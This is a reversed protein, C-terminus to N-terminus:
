TLFMACFTLFRDFGPDNPVSVSLKQNHVLLGATLDALDEAVSKSVRRHMQTSQTGYLNQAPIPLPPPVNKM